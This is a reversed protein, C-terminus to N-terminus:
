FHGRAQFHLLINNPTIKTEFNLVTQIVLPTHFIDRLLFNQKILCYKPKSKVYWMVSVIEHSVEREM